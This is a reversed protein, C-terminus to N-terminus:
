QQLGAKVFLTMICAVGVSWVLPRYSAMRRNSSIWIYYWTYVVRNAIYGVSLANLTATPLGASNGAVVAAAFLPLGEFANAGAAEARQLRQVLQKDLESKELQESFKRPNTGDFIKSGPGSLGSYVRPLLALILAVPVTFYSLNQEASFLSAM